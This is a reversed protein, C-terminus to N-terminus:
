TWHKKFSIQSSTHYIFHYHTPLLLSNNTAPLLYCTAHPYIPPYVIIHSILFLSSFSKTLDPFFRILVLQVYGKSPNLRNRIWYKTPSTGSPPRMSFALISLAIKTLPTMGIEEYGRKICCFYRNEMKALVIHTETSATCSHHLPKWTSRLGSLM